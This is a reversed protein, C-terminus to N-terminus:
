SKCEVYSRTARGEITIIGPHLSVGTNINKNKQLFPSIDDITHSHSDPANLGGRLHQWRGRSNFRRNLLAGTCGSLRALIFESVFSIDRRQLPKAHLSLRTRM